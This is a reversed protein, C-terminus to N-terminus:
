ASRSRSSRSCRSTRHFARALPDDPRWAYSGAIALAPLVIMLPWMRSMAGFMLIAGTAFM